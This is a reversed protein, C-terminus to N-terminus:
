VFSAKTEMLYIRKLVQSYRALRSRDDPKTLDQWNSIGLSVNGGSDSNDWGTCAIMGVETTGYLDILPRGLRLGKWTELLHSSVMASATIMIRISNVGALMKEAEVEGVTEKIASFHKALGNLRKPTLTICDIRGQKVREWFWAESFLKSCLEIRGGAILQTLMFKLTVMWNVFGSLELMVDAANLNFTDKLQTCMAYFCKISYLAGKPPGTTGSTFLVLGAKDCTVKSNKEQILLAQTTVVTNKIIYDVNVINFSASLRASEASQQNKANSIVCDANCLKVLYALEDPM